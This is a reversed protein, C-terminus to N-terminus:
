QARRVQNLLVAAIEADHATDFQITQTYSQGAVTRWECCLQGPAAGSNLAFAALSARRQEEISPVPLYEVHGNAFTM